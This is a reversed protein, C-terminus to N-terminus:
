ACLDPRENDGGRDENNGAPSTHITVNEVFVADFVELLATSVLCEIAMEANEVDDMILETFSDPCRVRLNVVCM